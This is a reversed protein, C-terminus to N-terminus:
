EGCYQHLATLFAVVNDSHYRQVSTMQRIFRMVIQIRRMAHESNLIPLMSDVTYEVHMMPMIRRLLEANKGKEDKRRRNNKNLMCLAARQTCFEGQFDDPFEARAEDVHRNYNTRFDSIHPRRFETYRVWNGFICERASEAPARYVFISQETLYTVFLRHLAESPFFRCAFANELATGVDRALQVDDPTVETKDNEDLVAIEDRVAPWKTPLHKQLLALHTWKKKHECYNYLEKVPVLGGTCHNYVTRIAAGTLTTMATITVFPAGVAVTKRCCEKIQEDRVTNEGAGDQM